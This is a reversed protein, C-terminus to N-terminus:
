TPGTRNVVTCGTRTSRRAQCTSIGGIHDFNDCATMSNTSAESGTDLAGADPLPRSWLHVQAKVMVQCGCLIDESDEASDFKVATPSCPKSKAWKPKSHEGYYLMNSTPETLTEPKAPRVGAAEVGRTGHSAVLGLLATCLLLQAAGWMKRQAFRSRPM